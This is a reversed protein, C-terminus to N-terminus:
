FIDETELISVREVDKVYVTDNVDYISNEEMELTSLKM